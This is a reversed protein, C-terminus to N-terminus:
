TSLRSLNHLYKIDQNNISEYSPLYTYAYLLIPRGGTSKTLWAWLEGEELYSGSGSESLSFLAEYIQQLEKQSLNCYGNEFWSQRFSTDDDLYEDIGKLDPM